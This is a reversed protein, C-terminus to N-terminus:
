IHKKGGTGSASQAVILGISPYYYGLFKMFMQMFGSYKENENPNKGENINNTAPENREIVEVKAYEIWLKNIGVSIKETRNQIKIIYKIENNCYQEQAQNEPTFM